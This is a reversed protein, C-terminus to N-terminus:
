NETGGHGAEVVKCRVQTDVANVSSPSSLKFPVTGPKAREAVKGKVLRQVRGNRHNYTNEKDSAFSGSSVQRSLQTAHKARTKQTLNVQKPQKPPCESVKAANSFAHCTSGEASNVASKNASESLRKSSFSKHLKSSYRNFDQQKAQKQEKLPRVVIGHEVQSGSM